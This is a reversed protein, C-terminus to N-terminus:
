SLCFICEKDVFIAETVCFDGVSRTDALHLGALCATLDVFVIGCVAEAYGINLLQLLFLWKSM